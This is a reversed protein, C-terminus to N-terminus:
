MHNDLWDMMPLMSIHNGLWDMVALMSVQNGLWQLVLGLAAAQVFGLKLTIVCHTVMHSM